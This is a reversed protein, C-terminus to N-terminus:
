GWVPPRRGSWPQARELQAALRLLTAEDGFRGNFLVGIPLGADNWWLPLSISPQGTANQIPTFPVYDLVTAFANALDREDIPVLGNEIPPAGLTPTLWCDWERFFTAMERGTTHLAAIALLYEAASVRQGREYLGWTLGELDDDAPRRGQQMSYLEINMATGAAWVTTFTDAFSAEDGPPSADEVVHGLDRCLMAAHEVARV